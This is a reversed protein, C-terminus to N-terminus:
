HNIFTILIRDPINILEWNLLSGNQGTHGTTRVSTLSFSCSSGLGTQGDWYQVPKCTLCDRVSVYVTTSSTWRGVPDPSRGTQGTQGPFQPLLRDPHFSAKSPGSPRVPALCVVLPVSTTRRESEAGRRRAASVVKCSTLVSEYECELQEWHRWCSCSHKM